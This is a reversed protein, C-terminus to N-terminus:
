TRWSAHSENQSLPACTRLFLHHTSGVGPVAVRCGRLDRVTRVRENAFLEYCGTHVGGLMVGPEGAEVRILTTLRFSMNIDPAGMAVPKSTGIEGPDDDLYQVDSFGERHLLEEAVYAPATCLSAKVLRIRTTEPPPDAMASQLDVGYLATSGALAGMGKVFERRCWHGGRRAPSAILHDAESEYNTM